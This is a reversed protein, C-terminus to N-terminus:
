FMGGGYAPDDAKEEEEELEINRKRRNIRAEKTMNEAAKDAKKKRTIDLDRLACASKESLNLGLRKYINLKFFM